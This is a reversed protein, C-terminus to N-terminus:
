SQYREPKLGSLIGMFFFRNSGRTRDATNKDEQVKERPPLVEEFLAAETVELLGIVELM